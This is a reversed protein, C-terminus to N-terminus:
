REGIVQDKAFYKALFFFFFFVPFLQCLLGLTQTPQPLHPQALYIWGVMDKRPILRPGPFGGLWRM